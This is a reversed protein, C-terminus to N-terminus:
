CKILGILFNRYGTCRMEWGHYFDCVPYITLNKGEISYPSYANKPYTVVVEKIFEDFSIKCPPPYEGYPYGCEMKVIKNQTANGNMVKCIMSNVFTLLYLFLLLKM